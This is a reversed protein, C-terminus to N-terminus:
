KTKGFLEEYLLNSSPDIVTFIELQNSQTSLKILEGDKLYFISEDDLIFVKEDVVQVDVIKNIENYQFLNKENLVTHKFYIEEFESEIIEFYNNLKRKKNDIVENEKQQYFKPKSQKKETIEYQYMNEGGWIMIKNEEVFYIKKIIEACKIVEKLEQNKYVYLFNPRMNMILYNENQLINLEENELDVELSYLFNM